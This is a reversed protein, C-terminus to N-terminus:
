KQTRELVIMKNTDDFVQRVTPKPDALLVFLADRLAEYDGPVRHRLQDFTFQSRPFAAIVQKLSAPTVQPM